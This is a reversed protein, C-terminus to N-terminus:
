PNVCCLDVNLTASTVSTDDQVEFSLRKNALWSCMLRITRKQPQGATVPGSYLHQTSVVTTNSFIEVSDNSAGGSQIANYELTLEANVCECCEKDTPPPITFSHRFYLDATTGGFNPELPPATPFDAAFPTAVLPPPATLVLQRPMPCKIPQTPLPQGKQAAGLGVFGALAVFALALTLSKKM